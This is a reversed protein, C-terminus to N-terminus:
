IIEGREIEEKRKILNYKKKIANRIDEKTLFYSEIDFDLSFAVKKYTRIIEPGFLLYKRYTYSEQCEDYFDTRYRPLHADTSVVDYEYTKDEYTITKM